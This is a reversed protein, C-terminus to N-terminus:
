KVIFNLDGVGVEAVIDIQVESTDYVDNVWYGDKRILGETLIKGLGKEATIKVGTQHPLFVTSKGVGNDITASFSEQWDGTLDLMMEGVGTEIDLEKLPLGGLYLHSSATGSKISMELPVQDTLILDWDNNTNKIANKKEQQQDLTIVGQEDDYSLEPTLQNETYLFRGELWDEAGSEINLNGVGMDIDLRLEEADDKEITKTEQVKEGAQVFSCGSLVLVAFLGTLTKWLNKM